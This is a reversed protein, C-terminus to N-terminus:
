FSSLPCPWMPVKGWGRLLQSWRQRQVPLGCCGPWSVWRRSQTPWCSAPWSCVPHQPHHQPTLFLSCSPPTYLPPAASQRTTMIRKRAKSHRKICLCAFRAYDVPWNYLITGHSAMHLVIPHKCTSLQAARTAARSFQQMHQQPFRGGTPSPYLLATTSTSYPRSHQHRCLLLCVDLVLLWRVTQATDTCAALTTHHHM